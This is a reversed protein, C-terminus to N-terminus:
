QDQRWQQQDQQQLSHFEDAVAQDTAAYNDATQNLKTATDTLNKVTDNLIDTVSSRLSEWQPVMSTWPANAAPPTCGLVLQAAETYDDTVKTLYHAVVYLENIEVALDPM